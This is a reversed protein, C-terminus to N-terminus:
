VTEAIVWADHLNCVSVAYLTGSYGTVDYRSVPADKTPNFMTEGLLNMKEDFLQHKVIYHEYGEMGHATTVQVMKKGDVTEAVMAPLHGGVKKGWRGPNEKTLYLSGAFASNIDAGGANAVTANVVSGVAAGAAVVGIFKRRDM